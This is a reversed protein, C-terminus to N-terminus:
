PVCIWLARIGAEIYEQRANELGFAVDTVGRCVAIYRACSLAGDDITGAYHPLMDYVFPAGGWHFFGAM